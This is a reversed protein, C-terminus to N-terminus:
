NYPNFYIILVSIIFIILNYISIHINFLLIYSIFYILYKNSIFKKLYINLYYIIIILLIYKISQTFFAILLSMIIIYIFSHKKYMDFIIFSTNINSISSIILDLLLYIM